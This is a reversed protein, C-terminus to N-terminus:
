SGSAAPREAARATPSSLMTMLLWLVPLLFALSGPVWMILGALAQDDLAGLGGARDITAYFPYVVRDSFTLIASLLTNQTEALLLYVIMVWRPWTERAPWALIVPRWFILGGLFFSAHEVHHWAGSRLALDYAGPLHWIWFAAIFAGWAVRPDALARALRRMPLTGLAIAVQRRVPRPLGLLVPAVPAGLWLLPPAVLMLLLHQIMHAQLFERGLGDLPSCAALVLAALGGVFAAARESGFRDPMRHRLVLWGRLYLAAAFAAPVAVDPEFVWSLEADAIPHSL